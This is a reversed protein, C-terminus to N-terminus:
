HTELAASALARRMATLPDAARVRRGVDHSDDRGHSHGGHGLYVGFRLSHFDQAHDDGTERISKHWPAPLRDTVPM